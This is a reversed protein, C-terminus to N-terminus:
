PQPRRSINCWGMAHLCTCSVVIITVYMKCYEDFNDFTSLTIYVCSDSRSGEHHILCVGPVLYKIRKSYYICMKRRSLVNGAHGQCWIQNDCWMADHLFLRRSFHCLFWFIYSLSFVRFRVRSVSNLLELDVSYQNTSLRYTYYRIYVARSKNAQM